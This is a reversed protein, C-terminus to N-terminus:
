DETHDEGDLHWDACKTCFPVGDYDCELAIDRVHQEVYQPRKKMFQLIQDEV